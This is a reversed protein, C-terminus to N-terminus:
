PYILVDFCYSVRTLKMYCVGSSRAVEGVLLVNLADLLNVRVSSIARDSVSVVPLNLLGFLQEEAGV